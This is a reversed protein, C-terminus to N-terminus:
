LSREYAVIAAIENDTLIAPYTHKAIDDVRQGFGPMQGSGMGAVGYLKGDVTGTAVFTQQQTAAEFKRVATGNTLNPGFFGDGDIYKDIVPKGTQKSTVTTGDYSWGKTHCRACSYAGSGQTNNFLLKGYVSAFRPSKPDSVDKLLDDVAQTIAAEATKVAAAKATADKIANAADLNAKLTSGEALVIQRAGAAVGADVDKRLDEEELQISRLYHILDDIQQPSLPGGGPAGWAPMVGNRGYNLVQTVESEDFRTLVATLAPAKWSVQAVFKGNPDTLAVSAVGGVGGPGHCSECRSSFEAAGRKTSRIDFGEDANKQRGPEALWYLPLTVAILSVMGLAFLLSRDLKKTELEDDPLYPKRNAALEVESGVEPKGARINILIYIVFGLLVLGFIVWGIARQTTAAAVIM